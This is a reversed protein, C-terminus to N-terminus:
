KRKGKTGSSSRGRRGAPNGSSSNGSKGKNRGAASKDGLKHLSGRKVEKAELMNSRPKKKASGTKAKGKGRPSESDHGRKGTARRSRGESKPKSGNRSEGANKGAPTQKDPVQKSRSKPKQDTVKGITKKPLKINLEKEIQSMLDKQAPSYFTVALGKEGARGTRGIRHVYSDADEPIDYNFVHTVGEVDLGRAAVDTAILLQFESDRFRKMVKERKAQSLDGHLEDCTFGYSVLDEYLKTVRRKTRCFIVALYPNGEKIMEVLAAQKGRDSVFVALQDVTKAPGQKREVSIYQPSKMHKKALAKIEDPITASFLLTQRSRPTERIIMEVEKLFGIHLMQDAEDLVLTDLESLDITGRGIHDLIRGPTGVVIGVNKRLKSLQKEVDQGGYVPLVTLGEIHRIIKRVEETIQLALERTPTIILAQINSKEFNFKEIIPLIFALTKGTGTQAQAIVDHHEMVAPIAKEQIPTPTTVNNKQLREVISESIGLTSFNKM